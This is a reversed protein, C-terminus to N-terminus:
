EPSLGVQNRFRDFRMRIDQLYRIQKGLRTRTAERAQQRKGEGEFTAEHTDKIGKFNFRITAEECSNRNKERRKWEM